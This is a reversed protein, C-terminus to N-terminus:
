VPEWDKINQLGSTPSWPDDLGGSAKKLAQEIETKRAERALAWGDYAWTGVEAPANGSRWGAPLAAELKEDETSPYPTRSKAKHWALGRAIVTDDWGGEPAGYRTYGSALVEAEYSVLEHRAIPHPLLQLKEQEIALALAQIMPGKTKSTTEFGVAYMADPMRKRLAELNPGGISNTEVCVERVGWKEFLALLRGRQFEWGIQNFRDLVIEHGCHCCFLSAATFDHTRGWDVGAVIFHGKHDSPLTEPAKLVADVNRFVAGDSSIFEALYEQRFTMEPLSKRAEEIEKPPLFPNVTSPLLWSIWNPYNESDQGHRWLDHFFNLGKPTSLFWATGSFDTLTPTIAQNWATQLNSVMAAEDVIALHYRRGRGADSNELTWAEIMGGNPFEIRRETANIRNAIGRSPKELDRWVDLLYKYTPSFWGVLEGNAAAELALHVGLYTKGARRGIDLVNYRRAAAKIEEQKPYLSPLPVDLRKARRRRQKNLELRVKVRRRAKEKATLSM